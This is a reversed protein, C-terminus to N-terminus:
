RLLSDITGGDFIHIGNWSCTKLSPPTLLLAKDLWNAEGISFNIFGLVFGPDVIENYSLLTAQLPDISNITAM